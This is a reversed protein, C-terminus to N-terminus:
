ITNWYTYCTQFPTGYAYANASVLPRAQVRRNQSGIIATASHTRSPHNYLSYCEKQIGNIINTGYTWTGGGVRVTAFPTVDGTRVDSITVREGNGPTASGGASPPPGANALGASGISVALAIVPAVVIASAWKRFSM